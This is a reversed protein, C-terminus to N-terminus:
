ACSCGDSVLLQERAGGESDGTLCMKVAVHVFERGGVEVVELGDIIGPWLGGQVEEEDREYWGGGDGEGHDGGGDGEGDGGRRAKGHPPLMLVGKYVTGFSGEGLKTRWNCTMRRLEDQSYRPLTGDAGVPRM